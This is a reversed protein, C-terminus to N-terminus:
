SGQGVGRSQGFRGSKLYRAEPGFLHRKASDIVRHRWSMTGGVMMFFSFFRPFFPFIPFNQPNKGGKERKLIPFFCFLPFDPFIHTFRGKLAKKGKMEAGRVLKNIVQRQKKEAAQEKIINRDIKNDVKKIVQIESPKLKRRLKDGEADQVIFRNGEREILKYLDLSYKQSGKELNGKSELIRAEAEVSINNNKNLENRNFKMDKGYNFNQKSVDNFM